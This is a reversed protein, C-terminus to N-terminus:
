EIDIKAAVEEAKEEAEEEAEEADAKVAEEAKDFSEFAFDSAEGIEASDKVVGVGKAIDEAKQKMDQAVSKVAEKLSKRAIAEAEAIKEESTDLSVYSREVPEEAEEEDLEDDFSNLYEDEKKRDLFYLFGAVAAGTIGMFAILKGIKKM